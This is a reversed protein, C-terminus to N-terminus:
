GQDVIGVGYCQFEGGQLGGGNVGSFVCFCEVFDLLDVGVVQINVVYIDVWVVVLWYDQQVVLGVVNLVIGLYCWSQCLFIVLYDYWIQMVVVCGMEEGGVCWMVILWCCYCGINDM